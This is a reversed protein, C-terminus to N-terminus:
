DCLIVVSHHTASVTNYRMVLMDNTINVIDIVMDIQVLNLDTGLFILDIGGSYLLCTSLLM